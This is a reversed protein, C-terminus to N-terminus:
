RGPATTRCDEDIGLLKRVEPSVVTTSLRSPPWLAASGKVGATVTLSDGDGM